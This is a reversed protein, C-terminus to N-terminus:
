ASYTHILSFSPSILFFFGDSSSPDVFPTVFFRLTIIILLFTQTSVFTQLAHQKDRHSVHFEENPKSCMRSSEKANLICSQSLSYFFPRLLTHSSVMKSATMLCDDRKRCCLLCFAPLLLRLLLLFFSTCSQERSEACVKHTYKKSM